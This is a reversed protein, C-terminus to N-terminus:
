SLTIYGEEIACKDPYSVCSQHIEQLYCRAMNEPLCDRCNDAGEGGPISPSPNRPVVLTMM